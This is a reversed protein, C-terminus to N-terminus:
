RVEAAPQTALRRLSPDLASLAPAHELLLSMPASSLTHWYLVHRARRARVHWLASAFAKATYTPDLVLGAERRAEDAAEAGGASAHGYGAGLFRVDISLRDRLPGFRAVGAQRACARALFRSILRLAWPPTSVCAGVVRTKLGEAAFGAALGAATGGSGLAVVCVDPEPLVGERVQAALERAARVYGMAGTVNSGGVTIPWAGSAVRSLLAVPVASWSSVPFARLGLGVDARLVELVHDTAPQPVLVAEVDLGARGGFYATALVHHSGAAGVTVVRNVGRALAEALLYELKRVKNGGYVEHTQDDRKVWLDSGPRSLSAVRVVPTPYRGLQLARPADLKKTSRSIKSTTV